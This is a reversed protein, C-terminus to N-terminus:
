SFRFGIRLQVVAKNATISIFDDQAFLLPFSQDFLCDMVVPKSEAVLGGVATPSFCEMALDKRRKLFVAHTVRCVLEQKGKFLEISAMDEILVHNFTHNLLKFFAFQGIWERDVDCLATDRLRAKDTPDAM